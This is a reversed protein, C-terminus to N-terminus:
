REIPTFSEKALLYAPLADEAKPTLVVVVTRLPTAMAFARTSTAPDVAEVGEGMGVDTDRVRSEALNERSKLYSELAGKADGGPKSGILVRITGLSPNDIECALALGDEGIEGPQFAPSWGQATDFAIPMTCVGDTGVRATATAPTATDRWVDTATTTGDPSAPLNAAGGCATALMAVLTIGIWRV